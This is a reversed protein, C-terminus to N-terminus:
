SYDASITSRCHPRHPEALAKTGDNIVRLANLSRPYGIFPLLQTVADIRVQRDNGVARNGAVHRAFQPEWGGLAALMAFTHLEHTKLDLGTRTTTASVIPRSSNRSTCSIARRLM